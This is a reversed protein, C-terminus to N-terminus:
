CALYLSSAEKLNSLAEEVSKGQSVTGVEPCTSVYMDEDKEIIATFTNM